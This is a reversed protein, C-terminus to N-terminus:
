PERFRFDKINPLGAEEIEKPHPGDYRHLYPTHPPNEMDGNVYFQNTCPNKKSLEECLEPNLPNWKAYIHELWELKKPNVGRETGWHILKYRIPTLLSYHFMPCKELLPQVEDPGPVPRQTPKFHFPPLNPKSRVRFMRRLGPQNLYWHMNVAFYRAQFDLVHWKPGDFKDRITAVANDDYFEDSDCIIIIDGNETKAENRMHNLFICKTRDCCGKISKDPPKYFHVRKENVFADRALEYSGDDLKAFLENHPAIMCHLEDVIKMHNKIAPVIWQKCAWGTFLGITRM